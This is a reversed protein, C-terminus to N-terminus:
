LVSSSSITVTESTTVSVSDDTVAPAASITANGSAVTTSNTGDDFTVGGGNGTGIQFGGDVGVVESTAGTCCEAQDVFVIPLFLDNTEMVDGSQTQGVAHCIATMRFPLEPLYNRYANLYSYLDTSVIQFQTFGENGINESTITSGPTTTFGDVGQVPGLVSSTNASDTPLTILGDKGQIEYSCDIRVVRIFQNVMRNQLGIFALATKGDFQGGGTNTFNPADSALPVILGALNTEQGDNSWGFALFSTGQDNNTTTGGCGLAGGVVVTGCVLPIGIVALRSLALRSIRSFLSM